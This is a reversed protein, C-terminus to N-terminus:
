YVGEEGIEESMMMMMTTMVPLQFLWSYGGMWGYFWFGIGVLMQIIIFVYMVPVQVLLLTLVKSGDQLGILIHLVLNVGHGVM